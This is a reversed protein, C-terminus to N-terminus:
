DVACLFRHNVQGVYPLGDADVCSHASKVANNRRFRKNGSGSRSKQDSLDIAETQLIMLVFLLFDM